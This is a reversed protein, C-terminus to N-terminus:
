KHEHVSFPSFFGLYDYNKVKKIQASSVQLQKSAINILRVTVKMNM